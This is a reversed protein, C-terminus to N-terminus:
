PRFSKKYFLGIDYYICLINVMHNICVALTVKRRCSAPDLPTLLVCKVDDPSFSVGLRLLYNRICKSALFQMVTACFETSCMFTPM